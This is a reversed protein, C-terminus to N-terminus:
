EAKARISGISSGPSKFCVVFIRDALQGRKGIRIFLIKKTFNAPPNPKQVVQKLCLTRTLWKRAISPPVRRPGVDFALAQM